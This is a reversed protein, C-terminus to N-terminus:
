GDDGELLVSERSQRTTAQRGPAYRRPAEQVTKSLPSTHGDSTQGPKDDLLMAFFRETADHNADAQRDCNTM